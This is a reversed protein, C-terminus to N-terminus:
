LLHYMNAVASYLSLVIYLSSYTFDFLDAVKVEFIRTNLYITERV